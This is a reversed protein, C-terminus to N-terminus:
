GRKVESRMESVSVPVGGDEDYDDWRDEGEDFDCEM